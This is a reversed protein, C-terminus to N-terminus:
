DIVEPGASVIVLKDPDLFRASAELIGEATIESVKGPYERFYDMGLDFREMNLLANAVGSNSELSLPLRGIYGAKSEELEAESVMETSFKRLEAIILKEAKELNAPNVGASVEWSGSSVWASLSSSAYYALGAKERVIEGIRGMMGFQGLINNGLSISLYDEDYRCPGRTGIVLDAQTKGPVFIHKKVEKSGNPPIPMHAVVRDSNSKWDGLFENVWDIVQQASVGGVVSLVMGKPSYQDRHFKLLDDREIAGLTEIYGDEPFGYPHDPFLLQDFKMSAVDPTSQDRIALGAIARDKQKHFHEEPFAPYRLSESLLEFVMPLDESLARGGFVSNHVSAGFGLNAGESELTEYIQEFSYKSTGRMLCSATFNALGLHNRPDFRSGCPLYGNIVVSPSNFNSRTLIVIGNELEVRTIDDAGPLADWNVNQILNM